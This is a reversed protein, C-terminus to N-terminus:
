IDPTVEEESSDTFTFTEAGGPIVNIAEVRVVPAGVTPTATFTLNAVGTNGLGGVAAIVASGDGNDTVNVLSPNDGVYSFTGDFTTPTGFEDGVMVTRTVKKDAHLDMIIQVREGPPPPVATTGPIRDAATTKTPAGFHPTFTWRRGKILWREEHILDGYDTIKGRPLDIVEGGTVSVAIM